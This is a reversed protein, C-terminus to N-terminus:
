PARRVVLEVDVGPPRRVAVAAVYNGIPRLQRFEWWAPDDGLRPDFTVGIPDLAFAVRDLPIALGLRRAKAYAEKLTWHEFFSGPPLSGDAIDPPAPHDANEVDVGVEVDATAVVCAVLGDSGSLNYRPRAPALSALVTRELTRRALFERRDREFHFRRYRAVEESSLLAEGAAVDAELDDVLAWWFHM